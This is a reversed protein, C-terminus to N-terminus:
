CADFARAVIELAVDRSVAACELRGQVRGNDTVPRVAAHSVNFGSFEIYPPLGRASRKWYVRRGARGDIGRFSTLERTVVLSRMEMATRIDVEGLRDIGATSVAEVPEGRLACAVAHGITQANRRDWRHYSPVVRLGNAAQFWRGVREQMTPPLPGVGLVPALNEISDQGALVVVRCAAERILARTLPASTRHDIAARLLGAAGPRRCKYHVADCILAHTHVDSADGLAYRTVDSYFRYLRPASQTIGPLAGGPGIRNRFFGFWEDFGCGHRPFPEDDLISPNIGVFAISPGREIEGWYTEPLQWHERWTGPWGQPPGRKPDAYADRVLHACPHDTRGREFVEVALETAEDYLGRFLERASV